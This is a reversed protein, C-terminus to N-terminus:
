RRLPRRWMSPMRPSSSSPRLSRRSGHGDYPAVADPPVEDSRLSGSGTAAAPPQSPSSTATGRDTRHRRGRRDARYGLMRRGGDDRRGVRRAHFQRDAALRLGPVPSGGPGPRDSPRCVSRPLAPRRHGDLARDGSSRDMGRPLVRLVWADALHLEPDAASPIRAVAGASAPAESPAASAPPQSAPGGVNSSPSGIFQSGLFLVAIVAAAGLGIPVLKNLTPVRWPGLVVRQRTQETRDRVADFSADPLTAPGDLPLRQAAPRPRSTRDHRDSRPHGPRALTQMSSPGSPRNPTICAPSSRGSPFASVLRSRRCRSGSTTTSSWSRASSSPSGDSLASSSTEITLPRTSTPGTCLSSPSSSSGSRGDRRRRTEAFCANTLIRHLWPEFREPDRLTRIERWATLLASQVADDALDYDRLIRFAIAMCRDGTLRALSDFAERDGRKAQAVLEAHM